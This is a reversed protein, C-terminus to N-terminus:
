HHKSDVNKVAELFELHLSCKGFFCFSFFFSVKLIKRELLPCSLMEKMSQASEGDKVVFTFFCCNKWNRRTGDCIWLDQM